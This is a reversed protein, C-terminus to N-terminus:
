GAPNFTRDIAGRATAAIDAPTAEPPLAVIEDVTSSGVVFPWGFAFDAAPDVPDAQAIADIAALEAVRWALLERAATPRIPTPFAAGPDCSALQMSGDDLVSFSAAMEIPAMAAWQELAGRLVPTEDVGTGAFTAYACRVAGRDATTLASEVVTESARYASQADLFGAFVLYWFSRDQAIPEGIRVDGDVLMPGPAVVLEGTPVSREHDAVSASAFEAFVHPALARYADIAGLGDLPAPDFTPAAADFTTAQQIERAQRHVDALTLAAADFSRGAQDASWANDQDLAAVAMAQTLAADIHAGSADDAVYVQGDALSYHVPTSPELATALMAEDASGTALGLARWTAVDVDGRLEAAARGAVAAAPESVIAIPEVFEADRAAEVALAYPETTADWDHPFLYPRGYVLLAAVLAALVILVVVLKLGRHSKKRPRPAAHTQHAAVVDTFAEAALPAAGRQRQDPQVASPLIPGVTTPMVAAVAEAPQAVPEIPTAERIEPLPGSEEVPPEISPPEVDPVAPVIPAPAFTRIEVPAVTPPVAPAAPDAVPSITMPEFVIGAPEAIPAAPEAIPAPALSAGSVDAVETAAAEAALSLTMPQLVVPAPESRQAEEATQPATILPEALPGSVSVSAPAPSPAATPPPAPAIEPAAPPPTPAAADNDDLVSTWSLTPLRKAQGTDSSATDPPVM